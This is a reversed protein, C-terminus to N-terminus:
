SLEVWVPVCLCCGCLGWEDVGGVGGLGWGRGVLQDRDDEVQECRGTVEKVRACKAQYTLYLAKGDDMIKEYELRYAKADETSNILANQLTAITKAQDRFRTRVTPSIPVTSVLTTRASVQVRADTPQEAVLASITPEEQTWQELASQAHKVSRSARMASPKPTGLLPAGPSVTTPITGEDLGDPM